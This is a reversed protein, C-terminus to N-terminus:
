LTVKLLQKEKGKRGIFLISNGNPIGESVMFPMENETDDVLEQYDFDGEKNIRIVNINSHNKSTQKFQIRDNSIEKVKEGANIFFYNYDASLISTYSLYGSSYTANFLSIGDSTSQKKNINRAWILDGQNNLKVSVIDDYHYEYSTQMGNIGNMGGYNSNTTRYTEEANLIIENNQSVFFGKIVLFKLEKDKVKGYKDELFQETFPNYKSQNIKLTTPDLAIYCLGKYRSDNRDSYFSVCAVKGDLFITKLSRIYHEQTDIIQTVIADTSIRSIEYHYDGGKDKNQEILVKGLLYLANGDKSLAINEFRYKSDKVESSFQQVFKQNLDSDFVFFKYTEAEKNKVEHIIAFASKDENFSIIPEFMTDATNPSITQFMKIEIEESCLKKTSFAFNDINSSLCNYNMIKGKRDYVREIINIKKEKIFLGVFEETMNIKYEYETLLKFDSNYHEIIYAKPIPILSGNLVRILILGGEGDSESFALDSKKHTDTFIESKQIQFPINQAFNFNNFFVVALLLFIKKM